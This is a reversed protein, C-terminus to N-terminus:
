TMFKTFGASTRFNHYFCGTRHRIRGRHTISGIFCGGLLLWAAQPAASHLARQSGLLRSALCLAGCPEAASSLGCRRHPSRGLLEVGQM